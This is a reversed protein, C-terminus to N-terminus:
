QVHQQVLLIIAARINSPVSSWGSVVDILQRNDPENSIIVSKIVGTKLMKELEQKQLSNRSHQRIGQGGSRYNLCNVSHAM